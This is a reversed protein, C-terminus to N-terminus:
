QRSIEDSDKSPDNIPERGLMRCHQAIMYENRALKQLELNAPDCFKGSDALYLIDPLKRPNGDEPTKDIYLSLYQGLSALNPCVHCTSVTKGQRKLIHDMCDLGNFHGDGVMVIQKPHSDSADLVREAFEGDVRDRIRKWKLKNQHYKDMGDPDISYSLFEEARHITLGERRLQHFRKQQGAFDKNERRFANTASKGDIFDPDIGVAYAANVFVAFADRSKLRSKNAFWATVDEPNRETGVHAEFSPKKAQDIELWLKSFGHQKLEPLMRAVSEKCRRDAHKTDGFLIVDSKSLAALVASNSETCIGSEDFNIDGLM